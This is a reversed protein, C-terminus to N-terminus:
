AVGAGAPHTTLEADRQPDPTAPPAGLRAIGAAAIPGLGRVTLGDGRPM